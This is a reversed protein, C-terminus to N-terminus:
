GLRRASTANETPPLNSDVRLIAELIVVRRDPEVLYAGEDNDPLKM